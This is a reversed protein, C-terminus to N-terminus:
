ANAGGDRWPDSRLAAVFTGWEPRLELWVMRLAHGMERWLAEAVVFLMAAPFTAVLLTDASCKIGWATYRHDARMM